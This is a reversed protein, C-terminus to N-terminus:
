GDEAPRRAVIFWTTGHAAADPLLRDACQVVELGAERLLARVRERDHLKERINEEFKLIGNEHVAINLNVVGGPERTTLFRARVSDSYDLEFPEGPPVEGEDLLDFVFHGGPVLCDRVNMVVRAVDTLDFVHNLADGTCTVLDFRRDSRWTVMNGVEYHISPDRSRAIDIMAESLDVGMAEVGRAAMAECLVGTGCGLDLCSNVELGQGEIWRALQEAFVEPYTNWGFENYVRCFLSGYM